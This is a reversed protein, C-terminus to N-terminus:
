RLEVNRGAQGISIGVSRSRSQRGDIWVFLFVYPVGLYAVSNGELGKSKV